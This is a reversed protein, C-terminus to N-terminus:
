IEESHPLSNKWGRSQHGGDTMEYIDRVTKWGSIATQANVLCYRRGEHIQRRRNEAAGATEPPTQWINKHRGLNLPGSGVGLPIIFTFIM